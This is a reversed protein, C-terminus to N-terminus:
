LFEEYLTKKRKCVAVVTGIALVYLSIFLTFMWAYDSLNQGEYGRLDGGTGALRLVEKVGPATVLFIGFITAGAAGIAIRKRASAGVLGFAMLMMSVGCWTFGVIHTNILAWAALVMLGVLWKAKPLKIAAFLFANALALSAAQSVFSNSIVADRFGIRLVHVSVFLTLALLPPILLNEKGPNGRAVVTALRLSFFLCALIVSLQVVISLGQLPSINLGHAIGAAAIYTLKPYNAFEKLTQKTTESGFDEALFVARTTAAHNAWDGHVAPMFRGYSSSNLTFAFAILALLGAAVVLWVGLRGSRAAGSVLLRM